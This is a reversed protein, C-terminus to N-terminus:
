SWSAKFDKIATELGSVVEETLEKKDAILQLLDAKRTSLFEELAEQCEKIRKVEVDDFYGNQMSWLIAVELDLGM